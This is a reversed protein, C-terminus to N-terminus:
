WGRREKQRECIKVFEAWSTIYEIEELARRTADSVYTPVHRREFEEKKDKTPPGYANYSWPSEKAM